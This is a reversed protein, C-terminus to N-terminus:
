SVAGVYCPLFIRFDKNSSTEQHATLIVDYNRILTKAVAVRFNACYTM